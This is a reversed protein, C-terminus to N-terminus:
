RVELAVGDVRLLYGRVNYEPYISRLVNMYSTLQAEYLPVDLESWGSKYDLVAIESGHRVWRDIRKVRGQADVFSMENHAEDYLAPAFWKQWDTQNLITHVWDLVQQAQQTGMLFRRSLWQVDIQPHPQPRTAFDMAEHLISGLDMAVQNQSLNQADNVMLSTWAEPVSELDVFLNVPQVTSDTKDLLRVSVDKEISSLQESWREPSQSLVEASDTISPLAHNLSEFLGAQENATAREEPTEDLEQAASVVLMQRARTMAVYCKNLQEQADLQSLEERRQARWLGVREGTSVWSVHTPVAENPPWDILWYNSSSRRNSTKMDILFVIPAELGKSAHVTLIRVADRVGLPESESHGEQARAQSRKLASLFDSLSPYRGANHNLALQLFSQLNAQVQAQLWVPVVRAYADYIRGQAYIRDLVDHVPLDGSFTRWETLLDCTQRWHPETEAYEQLIQWYSKKSSISQAAQDANQWTVLQLLQEDTKAFMPQRLVQILAWDDDARILWQVLAMLDLAELTDLLGGRRSSEFPIHAQRLLREYSVLHTRGYILLMVDSYRAPRYISGNEDWVPYQGVLQRIATILQASEDDRVTQEIVYQPQTLWDRAAHDPEDNPSEDGEVADDASKRPLSLSAIHGVVEHQATSHLKFDPLVCEPQAFMANVWDIVAQSNRRTLQTQLVQADYFETLLAEAQDFLRADAGRFRYISQKVDGVLFVSPREGDGQYAALWDRIIHWQLPNTDQFGDFLLHKYRADLQTQMFAATNEDQLLEFCQRAVDGFEVVNATQKQQRQIQLLQEVCPWIHTHLRYAQLDAERAAKRMFGASIADRAAEFQADDITGALVERQKKDLQFKQKSLTHSQTKFQSFTQWVTTADKSDLATQLIQANEIKKGSGVFMAQLLVDLAPDDVLEDYWTQLIEAEGLTVDFGTEALIEARQQEFPPVALQNQWLEIENSQALASSLIQQTVYEGVDRILALYHQRLEVGQETNFQAFFHQWIRQRLEDNDLLLEADRTVGSGMPAAKLLRYFWADFTYIPLEQGSGLIRDYLTRAAPLREAADHESMGRLQLFQLVEDDSGDAMERLLKAVRDRMEQAAKKTFTIALIHRPEVGELLLRVIRATLLWTKGSGACARVVVSNAPDLATQTFITGNTAQDNKFYAPATQNNEIM